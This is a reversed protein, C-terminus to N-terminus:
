NEVGLVFYQKVSLCIKCVQFEKPIYNDLAVQLYKDQKAAERVSELLGENERQHEEQLDAM